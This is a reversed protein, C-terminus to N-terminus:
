ARSFRKKAYVKEISDVIQVPINEVYDPYIISKETIIATIFQHEEPTLPLRHNM